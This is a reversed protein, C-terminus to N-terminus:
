APRGATNIPACIGASKGIVTKVESELDASHEIEWYTCGSVEEISQGGLTKL